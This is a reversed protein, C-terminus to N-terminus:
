KSLGLLPIAGYLPADEALTARAIPVTRGPTWARADVLARIRPLVDYGRNMVAGGFVLLEPDYAHVLTVALTGWVRCCHDLVAAAVPDGGDYHDFLTRFDIQPEAALPSTAFGAQEACIEPLAWTSAEAEACGHGGCLCRRGNLTVPLHGGIVGAQRHSSALLRAGTMAAGGIGTGITVMVVDDVGKAAGCRWEGLLALRTDNELRLPLGFVQESWARLDCEVADEFKRDLTAIVRGRDPDVIGCFGMSVGTCASAATREEDLLRRAAHALADLTSKLRAERIPSSAKRLVTCDNVLACTVHSGGIDIAIGLPRV